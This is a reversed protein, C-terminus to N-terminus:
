LVNLWSRRIKSFASIINNITSDECRCLWVLSSNEEDSLEVDNFFINNLKDIKGKQSEYFSDNIVISERNTQVIM